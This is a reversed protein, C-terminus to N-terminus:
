LKNMLNSLMPDDGLGVTSPVISGTSGRSSVFDEVQNLVAMRNSVEGLKEDNAAVSQLFMGGQDSINVANSGAKFQQVKKQISDLSRGLLGLRENIFSLTNQALVNKQEISKQEYVSILNNLISVARKPSADKFGLDLFASKSSLVTLGKLYAVATNRPDELSFSLKKNSALAANYHPNPLFKLIGYPTNVFQNMPYRDKGSLLVTQTNKHYSFDVSEVEIISDPNKAEVIVPSLIYGDSEKVNGKQSVPAYLFLKKVVDEMLARSKLVEIENEVDKKSAILNLSEMIPSDDSGRKNDKIIITAAAEYIPTVYRLYAYGAALSLLGFLILLPWYPLYKSIIQQIMNSSEKEEIEGYKNDNQLM